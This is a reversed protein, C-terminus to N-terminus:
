EYNIKSIKQQSSLIELVSDNWGITSSFRSIYYDPRNLVINNSDNRKIILAIDAQELMPLDNPSDGVALTKWNIYPFRNKFLSLVSTMGIAKDYGAEMLHFFQGGRVLKIGLVSLYKKFVQLQENNGNWIIPETSYRNRALKISPLDLGTLEQLSQNTLDSFGTFSFRHKKRLEGSISIIRDYTKADYICFYDGIFSTPDIYKSWSDKGKELKPFALASGNEGILIPKIKWPWDSVLVRMEDLTKSSNLVLPIENDAIYTLAETADDYSYLDNLLSADLDTIIIFSNNQM